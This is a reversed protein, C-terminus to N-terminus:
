VFNNRYAGWGLLGLGLLALTGGGSGSSDTPTDTVYGDIWPLYSGVSTYAAPEGSLACISTSYSTIGYLTDAYTLPGTIVEYLM